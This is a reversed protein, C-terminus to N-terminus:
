IPGSNNPQPGAWRVRTYFTAAEMRKCSVGGGGVEGSSVGGGEGEGAVTPDRAAAVPDTIGWAAVTKV